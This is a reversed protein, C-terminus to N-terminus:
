TKYAKIEIARFKGEDDSQTTNISKLTEWNKEPYTSGPVIRIGRINLPSNWTFSSDWTYVAQESWEYEAYFYANDYLTINPCYVALGDKDNDDRYGYAYLKSNDYM